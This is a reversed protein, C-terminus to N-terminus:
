PWERGLDFGMGMEWEEMWERLVSSERALCRRLVVPVEVQLEVRGPRGLGEFVLGSKVPLLLPMEERM